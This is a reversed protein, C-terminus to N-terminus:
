NLRIDEHKQGEQLHKIIKRLQESTVNSYITGDVAVVPSLACQGFCAVTRITINNDPTTYSIEGEEFAEAGGLMNCLEDLLLKSGKTHCATGRCVIVSHKGQPKLNFFSYFTVVSYIQSLPVKTKDSIYDLSEKPLFKYQNLEQVEELLGLLAGPKEKYRTIVEDIKHAEVVHPVSSEM